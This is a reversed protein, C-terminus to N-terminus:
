LVYTFDCVLSWVAAVIFFCLMCCVVSFLVDLLAVYCVCLM